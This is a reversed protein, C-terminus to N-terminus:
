RRMERPAVSSDPKVTVHNEEVLWLEKNRVTVLSIAENQISILNRWVAKKKTQAFAPCLGAEANQQFM